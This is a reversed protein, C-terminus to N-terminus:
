FRRSRVCSSGTRSMAERPRRVPGRRGAGVGFWGSPTPPGSRLRLREATEDRLPCVRIGPQIEGVPRVAAMPDKKSRPWQDGPEGANLRPFKHSREGPAVEDRFAPPSTRDCDSTRLQGRRWSRSALPPRSVEEAAGARLPDGPPAVSERAPPGAATGQWRFVRGWQQPRAQSM